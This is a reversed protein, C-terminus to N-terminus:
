EGQPIAFSKNWLTFKEGLNPQHILTTYTQLNAGIRDSGIRLIGQSLFGKPQFPTGKAFTQFARRAHKIFLYWREKAPKKQTQDKGRVRGRPAEFPWRGEFAVAPLKSRGDAKL